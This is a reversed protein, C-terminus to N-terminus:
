MKFDAVNKIEKKIITPSGKVSFSAYNELLISLKGSVSIRGSAGNKAILNMQEVNLQLFNLNASNKVEIENNKSLGTLTLDASNTCILNLQDCNVALDVNAVNHIAATLNTTQIANICEVNAVNVMKLENLNQYTIKLHIQRNKKQNEKSIVLKNNIVSYKLLSQYEQGKTIEIKQTTGKELIINDLGTIDIATFNNEIPIVIPKETKKSEHKDEQSYSCSMFILTIIYLTTKKM